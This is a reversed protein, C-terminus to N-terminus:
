LLETDEHSYAPACCCLVVLTKKGNNTISHATGPSILVSDGTTVSFVKDELRMVGTGSTIHYIEESRHHRHLLTTVGPPVRAEALSQNVVSHHDPHLLERIESGDKTLYAPRDKIQTKM